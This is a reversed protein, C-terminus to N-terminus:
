NLRLLFNLDNRDMRKALFYTLFYSFLFSGLLIRLYVELSLKFYFFGPVYPLIIFYLLLGLHYSVLTVFTMDIAMAKTFYDINEGFVKQIIQNRIEKEINTRIILYINILSILIFITSIVIIFLKFQKYILINQTYYDFSSKVKDVHNKLKEKTLVKVLSPYTNTKINLSQSSILLSKKYEVNDIIREVRYNTDDIELYDKEKISLSRALENGVFVVNSSTLKNIDDNTLIAGKYYDNVNKSLGVTNVLVKENNVEIEKNGSLIVSSQSNYYADIDKLNDLEYIYYEDNRLCKYTDIYRNVMYLKSLFMTVFYMGVAISLITLILRTGNNLREKFRILLSYSFNM